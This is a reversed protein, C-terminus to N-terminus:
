RRAHVGLDHSAQLAYGSLSPMIGSLKCIEAEGSVRVVQIGGLSASVIDDSAIDLRALMAVARSGHWPDGPPVVLNIAPIAAHGSQVLDNQVWSRADALHRVTELDAVHDAGPSSVVRLVEVGGMSRSRVVTSPIGYKALAAMAAERQLPTADAVSLSMMREHRTRTGFNSSVVRSGLIWAATLIVHREVQAPDHSHTM